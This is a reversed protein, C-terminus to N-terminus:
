DNTANKLEISLTALYENYKEIEKLVKKPTSKPWDEPYSSLQRTVLKAAVKIVKSKNM